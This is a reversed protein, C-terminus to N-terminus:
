SVRLFIIGPILSMILKGFFTPWYKQLSIVNYASYFYSGTIRIIMGPKLVPFFVSKVVTVLITCFMHAIFPRNCHFINQNLATRGSIIGGCIIPIYIYMFVLIPSVINGISFSHKDFPFLIPLKTHSM